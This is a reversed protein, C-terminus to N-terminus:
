NALSQDTVIEEQKRQRKSKKFHLLEYFVPVIVLTLVTAGSLGGIVVVALSQSVLSGDESHGFLLPLMACITAIATMVVPRLRTGCAEIIADRIIMTEENQKVRDILVIANTVVIGILMLAGILATADAPVGAILLGLVAGISALPLTMLIALPARLTKFTLVMILYVILISALMTIGLDKFDNAQQESAGGSDLSIGGPLDVNNVKKDINQAIVSLEEPTVEATIRAYLDGDKHLVTSPKEEQTISAVESLPVVGTNTALTLDNLDALSDPDIGANLFVPTQQDDLSMAGIPQPNLLSRIQMAAQQANAKKTNVKVTYIPSTKDLNSSVKQVGDVEKMEDILKNSTTIIENTNNGVVDYTITSNASGGFLSSPYAEIVVGKENEKAKNVEDIFAEADADETMIMTYMVTDPDSVQGYQADAESSGYQTIMYDYGDFRSLTKEFDVMREKKKDEPTASPFEMNISVISADNAGTAAKPMTMYLAISGGFVLVALLIPVFKHNLSWRLVKLYSKPPHHAPLTTNKLMARSLIPVVTLAVLLSALLSYTVTLGFPLLFAKLSGNVLGMPLFVAVTILTSSTIARSVEKTAELVTQKSLKENQSRRFINEVVVISDDVLRGVAVAVGGLTLINLTVGSVWLLLLTIALSLPISIATIITPKLKKLFLLIVLTAFLAGLGVEQIMSTVSNKVMDGTTFLTTAEVGAYEDNIKQVIDEVENGATVASADGEKFLVVAAAEKGNVRAIIDASKVQEVMAIDKLYVPPADPVQIPIPLNELADISTLNDTVNITSKQGDITSNGATVSVNQGQLVGMIANVPIQLKELKERDLNIQVRNGGGGVISAQSLAKQNEFLPKFKENMQEINDKTLGDDFTISVQGVPIMSTNLQSVQPKGIGEPLAISSIADEVNNKAEKMDTKSDFNISIQSFGEGTTSLVSTKGTVSSVAQEVPETVSSTMSGADYGHGLTVVTVQPNDAEPLFEMPLLFYSVIGVLMTIIIFLTMAAKNRFAWNTLSQM